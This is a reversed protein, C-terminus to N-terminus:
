KKGLSELVKDLQRGQRSKAVPATRVLNYYATPDYTQVNLRLDKATLEGMASLVAYSAIFADAEASILNAEADLLDQESDLVDLTTRAGLKAEERVGEFAVRAARVEQQSAAVGARAARLSAYANGVNQMVDLRVLHLQARLNDRQAMARRKTASLAGGQYIPGTVSLGVSGTRSYDDGYVEEGAALRGTLSLSPKMAADAALINLEAAAIDRQARLIDPHKRVAVAKAAEVDGKLNPIRRPVQLSGPKRGVASRFEEIAQLLDGQAAALGSQASALRAEALAVDTRTVEGVEFRDRAARLEQNLLRLNNERLSVFRSNRRVNMYAQVARLLVQQEVSVLAQRTALVTEQSAGIQFETRGFDYLLLSATIGINADTSRIGTRRNSTSTKGFTRTLDATWNLIPRLRSTAIAVDEDAARLLARNQELLGSNNYAAALADAITEGRVPAALCLAVAAGLMASKMLHKM